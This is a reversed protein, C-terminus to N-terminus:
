FRYHNFGGITDFSSHIQVGYKANKVDTKGYKLAFLALLFSGIIRHYAFLALVFSGNFKKEKKKEEIKKRKKRGASYFM